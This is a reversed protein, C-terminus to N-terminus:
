ALITFLVAFLISGGIYLWMDINKKKLKGKDEKRYKQLILLYRNNFIYLLYSFIIFISAVVIVYDSNRLSESGFYDIAVIILPGINLSILIGPGFLAAIEPGYWGKWKKLHWSYLRYYLYDYIDYIQNLCKM